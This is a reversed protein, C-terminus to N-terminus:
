RRSMRERVVSEIQSRDLGIDKLTRDPLGHLTHITARLKRRRELRDWGSRLAAFLRAGLSAPRHSHPPRSTPAYATASMAPDGKM